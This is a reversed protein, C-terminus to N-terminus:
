IPRDSPPASAGGSHAVTARRGMAGRVRKEVAVVPIVIAGVLIALGLQAPSIPATEFIAQMFPAYIFTLQLVV